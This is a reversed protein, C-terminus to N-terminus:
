IYKQKFIIEKYIEDNKTGRKYITMKLGSFLAHPGPELNEVSMITHHKIFYGRYLGSPPKTVLRRRKFRRLARIDNRNM